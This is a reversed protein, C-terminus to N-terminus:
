VLTVTWGKATAVAIEEATLNQIAGGDTNQGSIDTFKIVNTGAGYASTDPLSNITEVASDHNYRCYEQLGTFWDPDNKLAQYTVDDYVEKDATIGSNYNLITNKQNETVCYGIYTLDLTQNKWNVVFPTGDEQVAFTFAKLRSWGNSNLNNLMNSTWASPESVGLGKIEDLSMCNYFTNRYACSYSSTSKNRINALYRNPIKRLSYCNYFIQACYDSTGNMGTSFEFTDDLDDPDPIYRIRNCQSYMETMNSIRIHKIVPAETLNYCSFFARSCNISSNTSSDKSCIAFPIKTLKSSNAFMNYLVTVEPATMKDGYNDILWNWNNYSFRYTCDGIVALGSAPMVNLNSVEEAMELPTYKFENGNEDVPIYVVNFSVASYWSSTFRIQSISVIVEQTVGAGGNLTCIVTGSSHDAVTLTSNNAAETITIILKMYSSDLSDTTYNNVSLSYSVEKSLYGFKKTRVADGLATLTTDKIAYMTSM